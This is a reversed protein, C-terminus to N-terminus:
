IDTGVDVPEFDVDISEISADVTYDESKHKKGGALLGIVVGTGVAGAVRVVKRAVREVKTQPDKYWGFIGRKKTAIETTEEQANNKNMNEEM